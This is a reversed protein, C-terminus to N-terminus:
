GGRDVIISLFIFEADIEIITSLFIFILM